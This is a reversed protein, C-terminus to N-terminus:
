FSPLIVQEIFKKNDKVVNILFDQGIYLMNTGRRKRSSDACNQEALTESILIIM